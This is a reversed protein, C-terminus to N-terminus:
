FVKAHWGDMIVLLSIIGHFNIELAPSIWNLVGFLAFVIIGDVNWAKM